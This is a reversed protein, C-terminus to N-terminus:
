RGRLLDAKSRTALTLMQALPSEANRLHKDIRVLRELVDQTTEKRHPADDRSSFKYSYKDHSPFTYLYEVELRYFPFGRGYTVVEDAAVGYVCHNQPDIIRQSASTEKWWGLYSWDKMMSGLTTVLESSSISRENETRATIGNHPAQGGYSKEKLIIGEPTHMVVRRMRPRTDSEANQRGFGDFADHQSIETKVPDNDTIYGYKELASCTLEVLAAPTHKDKNEVDFTIECEPMTADRKAGTRQELLTLFSKGLWQTWQERQANKYADEFAHKYEHDCIERAAICVGTRAKVRAADGKGDDDHGHHAM